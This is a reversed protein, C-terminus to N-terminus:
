PQRETVVLVALLGLLFGFAATTFYEGQIRNLAYGIWFGAVVLGLAYVPAPLDSRRRRNM